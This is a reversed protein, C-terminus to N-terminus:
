YWGTAVFGSQDIGPGGNDGYFTCTSGGYELAAVFHFGLGSNGRWVAPMTARNGSANTATISNAAVATTLDYGVGVRAANGTTSGIGYYAADIPNENQGTVYEVIMTTSGGAERWATSTYNWSDNTDCVTTAWQCRNYMNWLFFRGATGLASLGGYIFDIQSSANSRVTGVYTGRSAAPGNTISANNLLAGAVMVLATGASRTTDNTWAPGRTLTDTGANSWVFLDYVSNAAVAAPGASGVASATTVNSLEAFATMVMASGNYIPLMAGIYPTYFITTKASQTTTMVPTATVLTLRGQPAVTTATAATAALTTGTMALGAGLTIEEANGAGAASGRGLLMSAASVDQLKAYTVADPDLTWTAGGGSVTIDGKDGDAVSAANLTTGTFSLNTGLAIEEIAGTAATARGLLKNTTMTFAHQANWNSPRVLSTDADDAQPSVFTHTVSVTM